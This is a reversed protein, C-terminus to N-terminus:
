VVGALEELRKIRAEQKDFRAQYRDHMQIMTSHHLMTLKTMNVMGRLQVRGDPRHEVHVSGRGIIGMDEFTKLSYGGFGQYGPRLVRRMGRLLEIDEFDDFTTFEVDAHGSGEVDFIFRANGAEDFTVLNADAGPNSAGTGAKKQVLLRISARAATSKTTDDNTHYSALEIAIDDETLGSIEVGGTTPNDTVKGIAGYTDTDQILTIGHAIESSKFSQINNDNTGQNLIMGVTLFADVIDNGLALISGDFLLNAEGLLADSGTVTVVTNNTSGSLSVNGSGGIAHFMERWNGSGVSGGESIFGFVDGAATTINAGSKLILNTANHTLTLIGDFQLFVVEGAQRFEFRTITTTGTIDFFWGDNGFTVTSASALDAGKAVDRHSGVTHIKTHLRGEVNDQDRQYPATEIALGM